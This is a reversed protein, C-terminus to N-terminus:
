RTAGHRRCRPGPEGYQDIELIKKRGANHCGPINCRAKPLHELCRDGSNGYSDPKRVRGHCVNTCGEVTCEGMYNRNRGEVPSVQRKIYKKTLPSSRTKETEDSSYETCTTSMQDESIVGTKVPKQLDELKVFQDPKLSLVPNGIPLKKILEENSITSSVNQTTTTGEVCTNDVQVHEEKMKKAQRGRKRGVVKAVLVKKVPSTRRIEKEVIVKEIKETKVRVKGISESKVSEDNSENETSAIDMSDSKEEGDKTRGSHEAPHIKLTIVETKQNVHYYIKKAALKWLLEEAVPAYPPTPNMNMMGVYVDKFCGQTPVGM